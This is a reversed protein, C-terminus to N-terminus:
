ESKGAAPDAAAVAQQAAAGRALSHTARVLERLQAATPDRVLWRGGKPLFVVACGFETRTSFRITIQNGSVWRNERVESIWSLPVRIARLYNSIIIADGDLAVRKNRILFWYMSTAMILLMSILTAMGSPSIPGGAGGEQITYVGLWHLLLLLAVGAIWLPPFVFKLFFTQASSITTTTKMNRGGLPTGILQPVAARIPREIISRHGQPPVPLKM